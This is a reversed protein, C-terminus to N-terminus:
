VLAFAMLPTETAVTLPAHDYAIETFIQTETTVDQLQGGLSTGDSRVDYTHTGYQIGDIPNLISGYVNEKTEVGQRNQVPIWPLAAIHGEPIAIWYGKSYVSVLGAASATLSPDHIFEVGQFQFSTNTSNSIGQAAQFAFKRFAISDCVINFNIGQWGNIDMNQRTIQIASDGNTAETIEFTDDVADFTGDATSVNVGSRNAFTFAAAVAELGEAFNAVVNNIKSAHTEEATYILNNAEKLTSAFVDTHTAWTPTLTSSDGQTGTHNHSIAAGLARSQRVFFNTEVVRDQSTRLEMYNPVMISTNRLYLKHVAPDRFRLEGAQFAGTLKAQAKVWEATGFNPM